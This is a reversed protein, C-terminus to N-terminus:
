RIDQLYMFGSPCTSSSLVEGDHCLCFNYALGKAVRKAAEVIEDWITISLMERLRPGEIVPM